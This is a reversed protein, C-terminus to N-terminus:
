PKAIWNSIVAADDLKWTRIEGDYCGTAVKGTGPHVAASHLWDNHGSYTQLAKGDAANHLRANKDASVSVVRNDPLLVFHTIEDGFGGIKRVEKTDAVNWVRLQKDRGGSIVQSGDALFAATSVVEGHGNFTGLADGTNADFIKSTKDRSASVLKTGDPSWAISVVWDAHDEILQQQEGSTADFIRISRDAGCAALRNGDPSFAVDFMADDTAVMNALLTGDAVQFIKVEGIRGPTGAAVALRAGDATFELGYVREAVNTIRRVLQGNEASWLLVEHYGSSALLNGDPSFALATVPIPVRYTEPPAPQPFKPMIQILPAGPDLGADLKSGLNVWRNILAQQEPTLPDAEKPMSGDAIMICLLADNSNGELVPGSEGGKVIAAYNEMNYRGKATRANHCALCREQFVPAVEAAFSVWEGVSKLLQEAAQERKLWEAYATDAAALLNMQQAQAQEIQKKSADLMATTQNSKTQLGGVAETSTQVLKQADALKTAEADAAAKAAESNKQAEALAKQADAYAQDAQKKVEDAKTAAEQETKLKAQAEELSKKTAQLERETKLLMQQLELLQNQLQTGQERSTQSQQQFPAAEQRLRQVEQLAQEKASPEASPTDDAVLSTSVAFACVTILLRTLM